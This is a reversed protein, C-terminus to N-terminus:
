YAATFIQRRHAPRELENVMAVAYDEVSIASNGDADSLLKGEATRFVGTRQGPSIMAAPSFVTWDIASEGQLIRHFQRAGEATAKYQPPFGETDILQVGPAVELTGAGGVVVLRPARAEKAASLIARAGALYYAQIDGQAHGSFASVVVDAGALEATLAAVNNVDVKHATVQAHVAVKEPSQVLALVNHGRSVAEKLIASGIFGSAGILAINM